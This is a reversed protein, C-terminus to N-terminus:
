ARNKITMVELVKAGTEDSVELIQQLEELLAKESDDIVGDALTIDVACVFAAERLESPLSSKAISVLGGVGENELVTLLKKFMDTVQKETYGDFIKMQLLYAFIGKAESEDISGDAASSALAIGLFAEQKDFTDNSSPAKDTSFWGM